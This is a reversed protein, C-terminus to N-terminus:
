RASTQGAVFPDLTAEVSEIVTLVEAAMDDWSRRRLVQALALQAEVYRDRASWWERLRRAIDRADRPDPILFDKLEPPIREAVGATSTVFTALGSCLAEHAALGYAEYRTPSILADCAALVGAVDSSFGIFHVGAAWPM